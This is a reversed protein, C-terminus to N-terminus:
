YESFRQQKSRVKGFYKKAKDPLHNSPDTESPFELNQEQLNFLDSFGFEKPNSWSCWLDSRVFMTNSIFNFANFSIIWRSTIQSSDAAAFTASRTSLFLQLIGGPYCFGTAAIGVTPAL